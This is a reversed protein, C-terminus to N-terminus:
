LSWFDQFRMWDIFNIVFDIYGELLFITITGFVEFYGIFTFNMFGIRMMTILM